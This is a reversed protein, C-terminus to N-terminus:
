ERITVAVSSEPPKEVDTSTVPNINRLSLQQWSSYCNERRRFFIVCGPDVYIRYKRQKSTSHLRLKEEEPQKLYIYFFLIVYKVM